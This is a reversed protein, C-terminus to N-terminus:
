DEHIEKINVAPTPKPKQKKVIPAPAVISTIAEEVVTKNIERLLYDSLQSLFKSKDESSAYMMRLLKKDPLKVSLNLSIQVEESNFMDFMNAAPPM